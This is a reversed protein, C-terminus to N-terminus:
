VSLSERWYLTFTASLTGSCRVALRTSAPWTLPPIWAPGGSDVRNTGGLAGTAAVESGSGGFGLEFTRVLDGVNVSYGVIEVGGALPPSAAVQVWSTNSLTVAIRGAQTATGSAVECCMFDFRMPNVALANSSRVAIRTSAPVYIGWPINIANAYDGVASFRVVESGSGGTGVEIPLSAGSGITSTHGIAYIVVPYALGATVQYWTNNAPSAQSFTLVESDEINLGVRYSPVAVGASVLDWTETDINWWRPAGFDPAEAVAALLGAEREGIPWAADRAAATAFRGCGQGFGENAKVATLKGFPEFTVRGM